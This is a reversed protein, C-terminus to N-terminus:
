GQFAIANEERYHREGQFLSVSSKSPCRLFLSFNVLSVRWALFVSITRQECSRRVVQFYNDAWTLSCSERSIIKDALYREVDHKYSEVSRREVDKATGADPSSTAVNVLEKKDSISSKKAPNLVDSTLACLHHRFYISTSKASGDIESFTSDPTTSRRKLPGTTVSTLVEASGFLLDNFRLDDLM